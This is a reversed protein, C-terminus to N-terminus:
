ARSVPSNGPVTRVHGSLFKEFLPTALTVHGGLNKPTLHARFRNFSRRDELLQCVHEWPCDLCSVLFIELVPTALTM